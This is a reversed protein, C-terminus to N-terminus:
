KYIWIICCIFEHEHEVLTTCTGFVFPTTMEHVELGLHDPVLLYFYVRITVEHCWKIVMSQYSVRHDVMTNVM